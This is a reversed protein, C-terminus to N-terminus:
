DRATEEERRIQRKIEAVVRNRRSRLQLTLGILLAASVGYASWVYVGHRGMALFESVNEFYM